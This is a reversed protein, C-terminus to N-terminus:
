KEDQPKPPKPSYPKTVSRLGQRGERFADILSGVMEVYTKGGTAVCIGTEQHFHIDGRLLSAKIGKETELKLRDGEMNILKFLQNQEPGTIDRLTFARVALADEQETQKPPVLFIANLPRNGQVARADSGSRVMVWRGIGPYDRSIENYLYLVDWVRHTNLKMSPVSVRLMQAPIDASARLNFNFNTKIQELFGDLSYDGYGARWEFLIPGALEGPETSRVAQNTGAPQANLLSPSNIALMTGLTFLMLSNRM